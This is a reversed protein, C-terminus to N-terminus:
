KGSTRGSPSSSSGRVKTDKRPITSLQRQSTTDTDGQSEYRHSSFPQLFGQIVRAQRFRVCSLFTQLFSPGLQVQSSGPHSEFVHLCICACVSAGQHPQRFWLCGWLLPFSTGPCWQTNSHVLKVYMLVCVCELLDCLHMPTLTCM